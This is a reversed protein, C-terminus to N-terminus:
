FRNVLIVRVDMNVDLLGVAIETPSPVTEKLDAFGRVSKQDFVIHFECFVGLNLRQTFNEVMVDFQDHAPPYKEVVPIVPTM